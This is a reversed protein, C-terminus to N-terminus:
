VYIFWNLQCPTDQAIKQAIWSDMSITAGFWDARGSKAYKIRKFFLSFLFFFCSNSIYLFRLPFESRNEHMSHLILSIRFEKNSKILYRFLKLEHVKKLAWVISKWTPVHNVCKRKKKKEKNMWELVVNPEVIGYQQM